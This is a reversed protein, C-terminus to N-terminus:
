GVCMKAVRVYYLRILVRFICFYHIKELYIRIKGKSTGIGRSRAPASKTLSALRDTQTVIFISLGGLSNWKKELFFFLFKHFNGL